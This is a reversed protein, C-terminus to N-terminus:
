NGSLVFFITPLFFYDRGPIGKTSYLWPPGRITAGGGNDCVFILPISSRPNLVLTTMNEVSHITTM